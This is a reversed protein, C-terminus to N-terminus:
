ESESIDVSSDSEVSLLGWAGAARLHTPGDHWVNTTGVDAEPRLWASISKGPALLASRPFGFGPFLDDYNYGNMTFARQRARGGPHVVRIVIQEDPKAQLRMSESAVDLYDPAFAYANLDDSRHITNPDDPDTINFQENLLRAFSLAHNNVAAEGRDYSDDCVPCDPVMHAKRSQSKYKAGSKVAEGWHSVEYGDTGVPYAVEPGDAKDWRWPLPNRDDWLNMGDRWFLVFERLRQVPGEPPKVNWVFSNGIGDPVAYSATCAIYGDEDRQKRCELGSADLTTGEADPTEGVAVPAEWNVPVVDIAGFLGHPIQSIVDAVPKVPVAGFAYPIWHMREDIADRLAIDLMKSLKANLVKPDDCDTNCAAAFPIQEDTFPATSDDSFQVYFKEGLAEDLPAQDSGVGVWRVDLVSAINTELEDDSTGSGAIGEFADRLSRMGFGSLEDDSMALVREYIKHEAIDGLIRMAEETDGPLDLKARGAYAQILETTTVGGDGGGLAAKNYGYGAPVDRILDLGPLGFNLALRTSPRVGSQVGAPRQLVGVSGSTNLSAGRQEVTPIPDTNLPVIRPMIADGLLDRAGDKSEGLLNVIRMRLCDGARVRLVFPEPQNKYVRKLSEIVRQADMQEFGNDDKIDKVGLQVPNMLALFLGDPDYYDAGYMTGKQDDFVRRTEVAVVVADIRRQEEGDDPIPCAIGNNANYSGDDTASEEAVGFTNVRM